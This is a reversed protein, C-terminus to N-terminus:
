EESREEYPEPLDTWAIVHVEQGEYWDNCTDWFNDIESGFSAAMDVHYRWEKEFSYKEIVTVLYNNICNPMEKKCLHWKPLDDIAQIAARRSILDNM